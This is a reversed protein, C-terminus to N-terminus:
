LRDIKVRFQDPPDIQTIIVEQLELDNKLYKRAFDQSKNSHDFDLKDITIERPKIREFKFKAM